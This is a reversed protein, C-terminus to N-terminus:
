PPSPRGPQAKQLRGNLPSTEEPLSRNDTM